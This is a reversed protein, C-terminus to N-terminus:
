ASGLGGALLPRGMGLAVQTVNGVVIGRGLAEDTMASQCVLQALAGRIVFVGALREYGQELDHPGEWLELGVRHQDSTLLSVGFADGLSSLLERPVSAVVSPPDISYSALGSVASAATMGDRDTGIVVAVGKAMAGLFRSAAADAGALIV